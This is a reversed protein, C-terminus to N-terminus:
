KMAKYVGVAYGTMIMAFIMTYVLVAERLKPELRNASTVYEHLYLVFEYSFLGLLGKGIQLQVDAPFSLASHVCFAVFGVFGGWSQLLKVESQPM